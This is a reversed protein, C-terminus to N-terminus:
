IILGVKAIHRQFIQHPSVRALHPSITLNGNTSYGPDLYVFSCVTKSQRAKGQRAKGQRAKGQRAKGQRAKGQRAKGQRAKGQRAKGQRAKGQRAKGQRAKGQRQWAAMEDFRRTKGIATTLGIDVASTLRLFYFDITSTYLLYIQIIFWSNQLFTKIM